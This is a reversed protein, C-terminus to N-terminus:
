NMYLWAHERALKYVVGCLFRDDENHCLLAKHAVDTQSAKCAEYDKQLSCTCIYRLLCQHQM